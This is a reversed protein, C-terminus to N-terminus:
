RQHHGQPSVAYQSLLAFAATKNSEWCYGGFQSMFLELQEHTLPTLKLKPDESYSRLAAVKLSYDNLRSLASYCFRWGDPLSDILRAHAQEAAMGKQHQSIALQVLLFIGTGLVTSVLLVIGSRAFARKFKTWDIRPITREGCIVCYRAEIVGHRPCIRTM